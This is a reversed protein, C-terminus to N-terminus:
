RCYVFSKARPIRFAGPSSPMWPGSSLASTPSVSSTWKRLRSVSVFLGCEICKWPTRYRNPDSPEYM